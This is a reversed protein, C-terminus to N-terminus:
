EVQHRQRQNNAADTDQGRDQSSEENTQAAAGVDHTSHILTEQDGRKRRDRCDIIDGRLREAIHIRYRASIDIADTAKGAQRQKIRHHDAQGNGSKQDPDGFIVGTGVITRDARNGLRGFGTM